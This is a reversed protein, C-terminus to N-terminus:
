LRPRDGREPGARRRASFASAPDPVELEGDIRFKYRTGAGAEPVTLQLGATTAAGAHRAAGDLVLEVRKAGAGLPSVDRRGRRHLLPGFSRRREHCRGRVRPGFAAPAHVQQRVPNRPASRASAGHRVPLELSLDGACEALTFRSRDAGRCQARHLGARRRRELPRACLVLFRGEPFNWDQETMETAAADALHRRYGGDPRTGDVWHRPSLRRFAGACSPSSARGADTM